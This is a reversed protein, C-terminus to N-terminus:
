FWEVGLRDEVPEGCQSIAHLPLRAWNVEVEEEVGRQVGTFWFQTSHNGAQVGPPAWM